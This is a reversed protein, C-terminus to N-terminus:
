KFPIVDDVILDDDDDDDDVVVMFYSVPVYDVGNVWGPIYM